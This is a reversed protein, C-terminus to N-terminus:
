RRTRRSVLWFALAMPCAVFCGVPLILFLSDFEWFVRVFVVVAAVVGAAYTWWALARNHRLSYIQSKAPSFRIAILLALLLFPWSWMVATLVLLVAISAPDIFGSIPLTPKGQSQLYFKVSLGVAWPLLMGSGGIFIAMRRATRQSIEDTPGVNKAHMAPASDGEPRVPSALMGGNRAGRHEPGPTARLRDLLYVPVVALALLGLFGPFLFRSGLVATMAVATHLGVMPWPGHSQPDRDHRKRALKYVLVFSAGALIAPVALGAVYLIGWITDM